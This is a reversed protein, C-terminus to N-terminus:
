ENLYNRNFKQPTIIETPFDQPYSKDKPIVVRKPKNDALKELNQMGSVWRKLHEKQQKVLNAAALRANHVREPNEQISLAEALCNADSEAKWRAEEAERQSM